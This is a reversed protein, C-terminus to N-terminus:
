NNSEIKNTFKDALVTQKPLMECIDDSGTSIVGYSELPNHIHDMITINNKLREVADLPTTSKSMQNSMARDLRRSALLFASVKDNCSCKRLLNDVNQQQHLSQDMKKELDSFFSM